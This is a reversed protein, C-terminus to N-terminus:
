VNVGTQKEFDAAVALVSRTNPNSRESIVTLKRQQAIAPFSLASTAAASIVAAGIKVIERRTPHNSKM